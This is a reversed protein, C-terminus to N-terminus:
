VRSWLDFVSRLVGQGATGAGGFPGLGLGEFARVLSREPQAASSISVDVGGWAAGIAQAAKVGAAEIPALAAAFVEPLLVGQFARFSVFSEM